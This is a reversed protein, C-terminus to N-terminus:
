VKEKVAKQTLFESVHASIVQDEFYDAGYLDVFDTVFSKLNGYYSKNSEYLETILAGLQEDSCTFNEKQAILKVMLTAKVSEEAYDTAYRNFEEYSMGLQKQCFEELTIGDEAGQTYYQIFQNRYFEKEKEPYSVLKSKQILKSQLYSSLSSYANSKADEELYERVFARVADLNEFKQEMLTNFTEVKLEPMAPRKAEKITVYFDVKKGAVEPDGYYPSFCLELKVESGIAKGMLGSEFGDIFSGSGLVLDADTDTANEHQKGDIFGKYDIVVVDFKQTKGEKHSTYADDSVQSLLIQYLYDEVKEDSVETSISPDDPYTLGVYDALEFYASLDEYQFLKSDQYKGSRYEQIFLNLAEKDDETKQATKVEETETSKQEEGCSVLSCLLILALFCCLLKTKM